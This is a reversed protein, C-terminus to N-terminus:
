NESHYGEFCPVCGSSNVVFTTRRPDRRLVPVVIVAIADEAHGPKTAFPIYFISRYEFHPGGLPEKGVM